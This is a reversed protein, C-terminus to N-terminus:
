LVNLRTWTRWSWAPWAKRIPFRTAFVCSVVFECIVVYWTYEKIMDFNWDTRCWVRKWPRDYLTSWFYWFWIMPMYNRRSKRGKGEFRKKGQDPTRRGESASPGPLKQDYTPVFHLSESTIFCTKLCMCRQFRRCRWIIRVWIWEQRRTSNGDRWRKWWRNLFFSPVRNSDLCDRCIRLNKQGIM